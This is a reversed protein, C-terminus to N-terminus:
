PSPGGNSLCSRIFTQWTADPEWVANLDLAAQQEDIDLCLVRYLYIFCSVRWNYACHVLKNNDRYRHMVTVFEDFDSVLPTQFDVPIHVYVMGQAQIRESEDAVAGPSDPLALNIVVEIGTEKLQDLQKSDPQGATHLHEDYRRYNKLSELM